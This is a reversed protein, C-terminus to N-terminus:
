PKVQSELHMHVRFLLIASMMLGSYPQTGLFGLVHNLSCFLQEMPSLSSGSLLQTLVQPVLIAVLSKLGAGLSYTNTRTGCRLLGGGDGAEPTLHITWLAATVAFTPQSPEVQRVSDMISM